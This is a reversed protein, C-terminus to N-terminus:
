AVVERRDRRRLGSSRLLRGALEPVYRAMALPGWRLVVPLEEFLPRWEGEGVCLSMARRAARPFYFRRWFRVGERHARELEADGAIHPRQRDMVRMIAHGMRAANSSLGGGYQRYGAVLTDHTCIPYRRTIRLYLDYDEAPSVSADFTGADDFISRRYMVMAPVAIQNVRLLATYPDEVIRGIQRPNALPERFHGMFQFRGSAFVAKPHERLAALGSALANPFLVDDADLFVVFDGRARALGANRAGSLGQNEQRFVRIRADREAYAAAVADTGDLSGDNVIIAEFEGHTQALVSNLADPLFHAQGYCPIIVSVLEGRTALEVPHLPNM